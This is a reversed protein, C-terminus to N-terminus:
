KALEVAYKAKIATNYSDGIGLFGANVVGVLQGYQNFVPSGSAGHQIAINHGFEVDGRIQTIKGDQNNAELGQETRALDFGAPFGITYVSAGIVFADDTIAAQNLDVIREVGAPLTKSNIQLVGVDIDNTAGAKIPTCRILDQLGSVHTDNLFCGVFAFQGEVKVDSIRSRKQEYDKILTFVGDDYEWPVSVHKNTVVKGDKSVIFGTGTFFMADNESEMAVVKGENNLAYYGLIKGNSSSEYYYAGAILVVSKKYMAYIQEPSLTGKSSILASAQTGPSKQLFLYGITVAVIIVAAAILLIKTKNSKPSVNNGVPIQAPIVRPFANSWDLPYKNSLLVTDGPRLVQTNIKHGNVYTGNTSGSDTIVIDGNIKEVLQAHSGSVDNYAVVIDNGPNRGITKKQKVASLDGEIVPFQHVLKPANLHKQWDVISTGAKIVDRATILTEQFIRQNNVFTGNKSNLDKIRVEGTDSISITAHQSSATPDNVVIDNSSSRGIKLVRM